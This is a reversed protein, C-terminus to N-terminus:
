ANDALIVGETTWFMLGLVALFEEESLKARHIHSRGTNFDCWYKDEMVKKAEAVNGVANCDDFFNNPIHGDFYMTYGAVTRSLDDPFHKDARYGA